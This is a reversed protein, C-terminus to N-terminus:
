LVFVRYVISEPNIHRIEQFIPLYRVDLIYGGKLTVIHIVPKVQVSNFCYALWLHLYFLSLIASYAVFCPLSKVLKYVMLILLFAKM